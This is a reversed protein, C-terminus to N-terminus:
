GMPILGIAMWWPVMVFVMVLICVITLPIGYRITEKNGYKGTEGAGLLMTVHQFPLLYHINVATYVLLAPVLPSWGAKLAYEVMPPSVVSMCALASGLVMHLVMTVGGIMGAFAFPNTPPTAPLITNALWQAMGTARSVNGIALAGVVFLVIPWNVGTSIDAPTLIEGIFPLAMGVAVGLAIWAPDIHHIFDTSWLLLAIVIWVSVVKENRTMPGMKKQDEIITQRNIEFPGTQKFMILQLGMMLFSAVIGPVAMYKIWDFFGVNLKSFGVGAVNLVSDGMLLIMSTATAAAFVGFGLAATDEENAKAEKIIQGVMAMILLTRPFPHPILFSLVFGLVYSLVVISKYSKAFRIMFFYAVRKALGSKTVAAAILFAGVMLWNLPLTFLRFVQGAMDVTTGDPNQVNGVLLIYGLFLLMTTYAPHAVGFVWWIVAFVTVSLAKQGAVPLGPIPIIWVIAAVVIGLLIGLVKKNM